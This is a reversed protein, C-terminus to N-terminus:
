SCSVQLVYASLKRFNGDDRPHGNVFINGTLATDSSTLGAVRGALINMLSTKGCGAVILSRTFKLTTCYLM